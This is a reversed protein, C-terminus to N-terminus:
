VTFPVARVEASLERQREQSRRLREEDRRSREALVAALFEEPDTGPPPAPAVHPLTRRLLDRSLERRSEPNITGARPLFSRIDQMLTLPLRGVDAGQVWRGLSEPVEVRQPSLSRMREQIVMTGALLDGVRRSRRDIVSCTLAIAGSTSWIELMAMVARLLSQRLHVPGGDDRVVRTGMVLRGVSRGHLLLECLVPYGVYALVSVAVIGAAVFGDDLEVRAATWAIAITGGILLGLQLVGDIAASLMRVAFSATRLDLLVADGTILADRDASVTAAASTPATGMTAM